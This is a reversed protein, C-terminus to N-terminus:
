LAAIERRQKITKNEVAVRQVIFLMIITNVTFSGGYSMLPLPVGTLPILALMGLLNVLIHFLLFLFTGYCLISGRLTEAEKSIKLIRYLMYVYGLIVLIAVIVGLEEVLIAFIFDTHAEPLYLYKQTSNGLGVGKLGGNHIAIFGNCVQYGTEETYRTCPKRFNLREMQYSNLLDGGFYIAAVAAVIAGVGLVKVFVAKHNKAMPISFFTFFVIGGIIVAGGLDPQLLVLGCILGCLCLPKLFALPQPNKKKIYSNFYVALYIIIFSKAFETPQIKIPGVKYWSLAGNGVDGYIRLGILSAIVGLILLPAFYKYKSTPMRLIVFIGAIYSVGMFLLQRVFFYSSSKNYRSVASVSSSSFVMVLGLVSYLVTLLLLPKDLKGFLKKMNEGISLLIM